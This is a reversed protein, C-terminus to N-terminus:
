KAEVTRKRPGRRLALGVFGFGSLLLVWTDPSPVGSVPPTFGGGGGGPFGGGGPPNFPTAGTGPINALGGVPLMSLSQPYSLALEPNQGLPSISPCDMEQRNVVQRNAAKHVKPASARAKKVIPVQQVTVVSGAGIGGALLLACINKLGVM